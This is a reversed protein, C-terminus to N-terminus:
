KGIGLRRWLSSEPHLLVINDSDIGREDLMAEIDRLPYPIGNEDIGMTLYGAKKGSELAERHSTNGRERSLYEMVFLAEGRALLDAAGRLVAAEGGEVDIKVVASAHTGAGLTGDLTLGPVRVTEPQNEAFWPQGAFDAVTTSSYEAFLNPFAYFTVEGEEDTMAAHRPRAQAFAELNRALVGYSERSAEIAEVRGSAGVLTAALQSFYGYHAGVDIFTDGPRLTRILFAALRIESDHVKGGTLYLDTASPLLVRLESGFFTSTTRSWARRRLPYVLWRYLLAEVYATPRYALRGLRTGEGLSRVKALGGQLDETRM